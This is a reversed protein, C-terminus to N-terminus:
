PRGGADIAPGIGSDLDVIIVDCDSQVLRSLANGAPYESLERVIRAQTGAITQAIQGRREEDPAILAVSVNTDGAAASESDLM